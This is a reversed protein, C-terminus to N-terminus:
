KSDMIEIGQWDDPVGRVMFQASRELYLQATKDDPNVALVQKFCTAAELFERAFYHQLGQEFETTTRLKLARIQEPDGDYVEFISVAEQKGKVQVNGLFRSHYAEPTEIGSLTEESVIISAGYKKTLGELRSALNVTDSIVTGDMREDDGITGLMLTGTHLGIGIRLTWTLNNQQNYVELQKLMGISANVADEPCMPFIAMVADGIYKDIFGHHQRIPPIVYNLYENLFEFNEKPTMGESISTFSRIDSFLVTMAGQTQDGLKVDLISERGLTRLFENPVFRGYAANINLLELHTQIRSLLEDKSFPKALYDNAGSSFGEVLDAIQDKATIMIVPLANRPYLERIKRCVEYGSMRPMMIDLLVMDFTGEQELIRLAEHGNFAQHIAYDGSTLHNALVQQNIPEDDVVLIHFRGSIAPMRAAEPLASMRDAEPQDITRVKALEHRQEVTEPIEESIPLTFMFTSGKGPESEVSITGEHLEVLQKTITLGLGTGGYARSISADVQEFSTFIDDIKEQPIGIGTDSVSIAVIKTFEEGKSLSLVGGPLPVPHTVEASVTVSGSETFKIANGVLNHLIQQLRNEDGDVPPFDHGIDNKLTLNKGAILPESLKLVVDTLTRMDIAKRQLELDHKKLKSFDLLDNVLSALRRGSSVIMSLNTRGTDSQEGAVGDVLAEAIGIIGHLPTRLEHSTNALFDDKLQDVQRLRESVLREQEVRKREQALEKDKRKLEEAQAKTRYHVYGVIAGLVTLVYLSYAWWTKWPPPTITLHISAGEENWVGDNNSGKVRFTYTGAPLNSYSAFRRSGSYVWDKDFGEMLYAYQNKEPVTYDLAAFEFSFVNEKYSLTMTETETISKQLPAHDGPKVPKYFLEFSTIVVPPVHPNDQTPFFANIGNLGGFFMEGRRDKHFTGWLFVDSQLGDGVDYNRFRETYPNFKSLGRHTSLWLNGWSDELIGSILDTPLGDKVTYRIFTEAARDFKNLGGDTGVWLTGAQDEYVCSIANHGLSHADNPDNQYHVFQETDRVFRNLGGGNGKQATGMWVGTGIWLTGARDEYISSIINHSLSAPDDPAYQYHVCQEIKRDCTNLGKDTGIWFTGFGDEYIARISNSSLSHPNDPDHKYHIFQETDRTFKNLGGRGTGIWLEGIHDEYVAMVGKDSLSYPDDPNHSYRIFQKTSRNFKYLGNDRTGIWLIGTRDEYISNVFKSALHHRFHVKGRALKNLGGGDTGIWLIGSKDVYLPLVHNHSLSYPDGPHNQYHTFQESARDFKNLGGNWTGIWLSRSQDEFISLANNDSLSHPDDPNHQYHIFEETERDFKNLGGYFTGIWLIGLHDEYISIVENASLSHPNDPNHKYHFFDGADRNFKNLGGDTGIWLVGSRDEYIETVRNDSLSQPDDPAYQYRLFQETNRDFRNLGGNWTGIWLEGMRDEHISPIMNDSLSQPDNPDYQYHTFRETDRVFRNLGGGWTGVWLHESTDEYLSTVANHSLSHPNEPDHRYSTFHYGDYRVLGDNTGLWLFGKRDQLICIISTQFLGHEGSIREFTIDNEKADLPFVSILSALLLLCLIRAQINKNFLAHM